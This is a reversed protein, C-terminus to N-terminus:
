KRRRRIVALAGVGLVALTAPEPVASYEGDVRWGGINGTDGTASDRAFLTWTGNPDLGNFVSGSSLVTNNGLAVGTEAVQHAARYAGSPLVFASTQGDLAAELTTASVVDFVYNGGLDSDEGFTASETAGGRPRQFLTFRFGGYELHIQVDGVWTHTTNFLSVSRIGTILGPAGSFVGSSSNVANDAIVIAGGTASFTAAMSSASVAFAALLTIKKM